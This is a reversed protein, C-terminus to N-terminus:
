AFRTPAPRALTLRELVVKKIARAVEKKDGDARIVAWRDPASAAMRLYGDRVRRHFAVKELDLRNMEGGSQRRRDLGLSVDIDLLVTLHPQLGGTAFSTIAIVQELDLGRGYGQYAVSSDSYRDCLVIQNAALAPRVVNAVLQARSACYLLLEAEAVMQTNQVDHLCARIQDGIPTGGPERTVTVRYGQGTLSEGLQVIQSSKGSGEPGEFTIFM